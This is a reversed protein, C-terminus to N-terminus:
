FSKANVNVNDALKREFNNRLQRTLSRLSNRCQKFASLDSSLNSITFKRWLYNKKNKLKLAEM